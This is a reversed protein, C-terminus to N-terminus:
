RYVIRTSKKGVTAFVVYLDQLTVLTSPTSVTILIILTSM